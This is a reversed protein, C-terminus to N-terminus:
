SPAIRGRAVSRATPCPPPVAARGTRALQVCAAPPRLALASPPATCALLASPVRRSDRHRATRALRSVSHTMAQKRLCAVYPHPLKQTGRMHHLDDGVHCRPGRQLLWALLPLVVVREVGYGHVWRHRVARVVRRDQKRLPGYSTMTGCFPSCLHLQPSVTPLRPKRCSGWFSCLVVRMLGTEAGKLVVGRRM